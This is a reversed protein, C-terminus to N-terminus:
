GLGNLRCLATAGAAAVVAVLLPLRLWLTLAAAGLGVVRADLRVGGGPAQLTEYVVLAALLAPALLGVVSALRDPLQRGGLAVPGAARIAATGAFLGAVTLWVAIV